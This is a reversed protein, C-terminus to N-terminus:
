SAVHFAEHINVYHEPSLRKRLVLGMDTVVGFLCLRERPPLRLSSPSARRLRSAPTQPSWLASCGVLGM